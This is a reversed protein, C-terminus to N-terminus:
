LVASGSLQPVKPFWEKNQIERANTGFLFLFWFCFLLSEMESSRFYSFFFFPKRGCYMAFGGLTVAGAGLSPLAPLISLLSRRYLSFIVYSTPKLECVSVCVCVCVCVCVYVCAYVCVCVCVHVCVCVCVCVHVCACVCVCVCVCVRFCKELM